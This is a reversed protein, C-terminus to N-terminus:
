KESGGPISAVLMWREGRRGYHLAGGANEVKDLLYRIGRGGALESPADAAVRNSVSIELPEGPEFQIMLYVESAPAAYKFANAAAERIVAAAIIRQQSTTATLEGDGDVSLTLQRTALLDQAQRIVQALSVDLQPESLEAMIGRLRKSAAQASAAIKEILETRVGPDAETKLRQAAVSIHALDKAITDHLLHEVAKGTDEAATSLKVSLEANEAHTQRLQRDILYFPLGVVAAVGLVLIPTPLSRLPDGTVRYSLLFLASGLLVAYLLARAFRGDRIAFILLSAGFIAGFIALYAPNVSLSLGFHLLLFLPEGLFPTFIAFGAYAVEVALIGLFYVLNVSHPVSLILDLVVGLGMVAALVRARRVGLPVQPRSEKGM